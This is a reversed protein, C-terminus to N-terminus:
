KIFTLKYTLNFYLPINDQISNVEDQVTSYDHKNLSVVHTAFNM